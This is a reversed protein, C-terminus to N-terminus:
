SWSVQPTKFHISKGSERDAVEKKIAELNVSTGEVVAAKLQDLTMGPFKRTKNIHANDM